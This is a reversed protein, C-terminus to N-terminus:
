KFFEVSCYSYLRQHGKWMWKGNKRKTIFTIGDDSQKEMYFCTFIDGTPRFKVTICEDSESLFDFHYERYDTLRKHFIVTGHTFPLPIEM